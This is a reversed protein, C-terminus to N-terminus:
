QKYCLSSNKFVSGDFRSLEGQTGMWLFGNVDKRMQYVCAQSLGDNIGWHVARYKGATTEQINEQASCFSATSVAILLFLVTTSFRM